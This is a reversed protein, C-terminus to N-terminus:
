HLCSWHLHFAQASKALATQQWGNRTTAILSKTNNHWEGSFMPSLAIAIFLAMVMGIDSVSNAVVTSWGEVWDYNFPAPTKSDM